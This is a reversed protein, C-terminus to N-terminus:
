SRPRLLVDLSTEGTGTKELRPYRLGGNWAIAIERVRNGSKVILRIPDSGGKAASIAETM